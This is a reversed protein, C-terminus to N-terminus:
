RTWRTNHWGNERRFPAACQKPRLSRARPRRKSRPAGIRASRGQAVPTAGGPEFVIEAKVKNRARRRSFKTGENFLHYKAVGLRSLREDNCSEPFLLAIRQKLISPMGQSGLDELTLGRSCVLIIVNQVAIIAKNVAM